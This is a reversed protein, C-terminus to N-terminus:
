DRPSLAHVITLENPDFAVMAERVFRLFAAVRPPPNGSRRYMAYINFSPPCTWGPLLRVLRGSSVYAPDFCAVYIVGASAMAAVLLAERDQTILAPAVHVAERRGEREFSWGDLPVFDMVDAVLGKVGYADLVLREARTLPSETSKAESQPRLIRGDVSARDSHRHGWRLWFHLCGSVGSTKGSSARRVVRLRNDKSMLLM